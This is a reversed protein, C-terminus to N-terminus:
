RTETMQPYILVRDHTLLILDDAGDGTVDAIVCASPEFQRPEGGSFLRSEFVKWSAAHLMRGAESFTFIELMQEGADLSVLDTFGDGNVDGATLEHHIRRENDSRWATVEKLALREGALRIVAFGDSGVALVNEAGDGSFAGAHIDNFTFGRAFVSERQRYERPTHEGEAAFIVLRNNQTDSAIIRGQSVTIAVLKSAPNDAAFQAVVQWGPSVGAPPSPVFRVARVFNRDAILLEDIGDGDVDHVTTNESTAAQVLGFQGMDKSERLKFGTEEAHLMMMPKDGTLLLVDTRGDQDADLAVISDPSKSASGLGIRDTAGDMSILAVSYTRGEKLVVALRPQGNLRVLNMAVPTQGEPLPVPAPYTISGDAGLECRGVVSEKESLVFLEAQPDDDVNGAALAGVEALSPFSRVRQLGKGTIQRYLVITNAENDTTLLDTLGDGDADTVVVSRLKSAPDTFGFVSLAADRDGSQGITERVLQSIVMRRSAREITAILPAPGGPLRVPAVEALPPSEFRLQPGLVGRGNESEALWLRVPSPDDPIAGAVDLRGNGDFDDIWCAVIPAGGALTELRTISAGKMGWILIKGEAITVLEPSADGVVDAVRLADKNGLLDKVRHRAVSEFTGPSSQRLFVIESPTGVYVLDLRGDGDFDHPTIAGVRHSVTVFERRFRWHGPIENTRPPTLAEGDPSANRRQYHIEVRSKFNNVAILDNFGDGDMDAVAIPGAGRDIKVIELGAFGFYEALDQAHVVHGLSAAGILLVTLLTRPLRAQSTRSTM